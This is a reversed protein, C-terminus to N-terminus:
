LPASESSVITSSLAPNSRADNLSATSATASTAEPAEVDVTYSVYKGKLFSHTNDWIFTYVGAKNAVIRGQVPAIHSDRMQIPELM